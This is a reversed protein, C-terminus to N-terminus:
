PAAEVADANAPSWSLDVPVPRRARCPGPVGAHYQRPAWQWRLAIGLADPPRRWQWLVMSVLLGCGLPLAPWLPLAARLGLPLQALVALSLGPLAGLAARLGRPANPMLLPGFADVIAAGAVTAFLAVQASGDLLDPSVFAVAALWLVPAAFAIGLHGMRIGFLQWRYSLRSYVPRTQLGQPANPM